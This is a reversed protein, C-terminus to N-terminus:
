FKPPPQSQLVERITKPKVQPYRANDLPDLKASGGAMNHVYQLAQWLPFADDPKGPNEQQQKAIEAALDDISGREVRRLKKGLWQEFLALLENSSVSDGAFRVIRPANSDVATEAIYRAADDTTTFDMEQAGDGWVDFTGAKLNLLPFGMTLIEAFAGNLVSTGRVGAKDLIENFERRLDLNRNEHDAKFFDISYDSPIMRAVGAKEAAHLLHGQGDVVAERLGQVASVIVAIGDVAVSLTDPQNINAEVTKVGRERFSQVLKAKAGEYGGPRITARVNAGRDLLASTIKAGMMGTLGVVLVNTEPNTM